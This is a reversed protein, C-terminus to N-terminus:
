NLRCCLVGGRGFATKIVKTPVDLMVGPPGCGWSPPGTSAGSLVATLLGCMATNPGTSNATNGCGALNNGESLNCGLM